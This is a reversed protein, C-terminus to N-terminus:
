PLCLAKAMLERLGMNELRHCILLPSNKQKNIQKSKQKNAQKIFFIHVLYRLTINLAGPGQILKASCSDEKIAFYGIEPNYLLEEFVGRKL